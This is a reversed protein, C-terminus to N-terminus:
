DNRFLVLYAVQDGVVGQVGYPDHLLRGYVFTYEHRQSDLIKFNPIKKVINFIREALFRDGVVDIGLFEFLKINEAKDSIKLKLKVNNQSIPSSIDLIELGPFRSSFHEILRNEEAEEVRNHLYAVLPTLLLFYVVFKNKHKM